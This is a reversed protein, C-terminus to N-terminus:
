AGFYEERKRLLFKKTFTEQGFALNKTLIEQSVFEPCSVPEATLPNLALTANAL